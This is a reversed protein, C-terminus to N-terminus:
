AKQYAEPSLNLSKLRDINARQFEVLWEPERNEIGGAAACLAAALEVAHERPFVHFRFDPVRRASPTTL